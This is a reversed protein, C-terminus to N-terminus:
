SRKSTTQCGLYLRFMRLLILLGKLCLRRQVRTKLRHWLRLCFLLIQLVCCLATLGSANRKRKEIRKRQRLAELFLAMKGPGDAETGESVHCLIKQLMRLRFDQRHIQRIGAQWTRNLQRERHRRKRAWERRVRHNHLIQRFRDWTM